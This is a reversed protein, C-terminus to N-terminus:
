GGQESLGARIWAQFEAVGQEQTVLVGSAHRRSKLGKQNLECARGDQEVVLQGLGIVKELDFEPSAISEENLLWDVTLRTKEASLPMMHVMRAYDVHGVLFCSPEAVGYTHGQGRQNGDLREFSPLSTKGDLTWTVAGPALRSRVGGASTPEPPQSAPNEDPSSYGKGFTPVVQCLEPHVGPCHYCEEFNEWFIKWNCELEVEMRHAVQTTELCWNSFRSPIGKLADDAPLPSELELNVFVYGIWEVAGVQYLPFNGVDFDDSPLRWPTKQLEGDLSYTWAHYPCVIRGGNFRGRSHECLISGRHRCTNHFVKIQKNDDRLVILSQDGVEAVAFDGSENLDEFRGLCIWNRYWFADLERRFHTDDSYYHSPLSEVTNVNFRRNM